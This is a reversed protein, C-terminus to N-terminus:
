PIKEPALLTSCDIMKAVATAIRPHRLCVAGLAIAPVHYHEQLIQIDAAEWVSCGIVPITTHNTLQDILAWNQPQAAQGSVGGGGFKALPSTQGPFAYEWPVSNLNIAEVLNQLESLIPTWPTKVSGKFLLPHRCCTKIAECHQLCVKPDTAGASTKNPCSPNYEIGVIPIDNLLRAMYKLEDASEQFTTISVILPPLQGSRVKSGVTKYWWDFGPNTFSVANVLGNPISKIVQWPKHWRLNGRRPERTLTKTIHTAGGMNFIGLPTLIFREHPWGRGDYALAGSATLLNFQHDNSLTIM